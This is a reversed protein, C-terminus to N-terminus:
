WYTFSTIEADEFNEIKVREYPRFYMPQKLNKVYKVFIEPWIKKEAKKYFDNRSAIGLEQVSLIINKRLEDFEAFDFEDTLLERDNNDGYKGILLCYLARNAWHRNKDQFRRYLKKLIDKNITVQMELLARLLHLEQWEYINNKSFLFDLLFDVIKKNRPYLALFSCFDDAHQPKNIFNELMLDIVTKEDFDFGSMKLVSLRFVCFKIHRKDFSNKDSFAGKFLDQTLIPIIAQIKSVNKSEFANQISDLIYKKPDFLEKEIEKHKLIKTKKANINLKYKRLSKIFKILAKKAEIESKCWIRIDDMYRFYGKEVEMERDINDLYVDGLFTSATPGQPLGFGGVRGTSWPLLLNYFLFDIVEKAEKDNSNIYNILKKRLESLDIHEFYGSIDTSVVYYYGSNYYQRNREDFKKWPDIRRKPNKFNLISFTRRSIRNIIKPILYDVLAQFIIWDQIEPRAMPRITFNGKPVDITLLPKPKYKENQINKYIEGLIEKKDLSVYSFRLPDPIPNNGRRDDKLISNLAKELDLKM